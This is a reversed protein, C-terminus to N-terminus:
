FADGRLAPARLAGVLVELTFEAEVVVFATTEAAPVVVYGDDETAVGERHGLAM